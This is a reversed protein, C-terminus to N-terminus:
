RPVQPLSPSEATWLLLLRISQRHSCRTHMKVFLFGYALGVLQKQLLSAPKETSNFRAWFHGFMFYSVIFM